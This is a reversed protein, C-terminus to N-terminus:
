TLIARAAAVGAGESIEIGQRSLADEIAALCLFVNEERAGYGMLGVRWVRGALAGLGAGIELGYEALLYSRVAAEDVGEPVNIANLQPLRNDSRFLM